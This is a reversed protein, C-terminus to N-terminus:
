PGAHSGRLYFHELGFPSGQEIASAPYFEVGPSIIDLIGRVWNSRVDYLFRPDAGAATWAELHPSRVFHASSGGQSRLMLFHNKEGPLGTFNLEFVAQVSEPVTLSELRPKGIPTQALFTRGAEQGATRSGFLIQEDVHERYLSVRTRLQSITAAENKVIDFALTQLLDLPDREDLLTRFDVEKDLPLLPAPVSQLVRDVLPKGFHAAVSEVIRFRRRVVWLLQEYIKEIDPSIRSKM